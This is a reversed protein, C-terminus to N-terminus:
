QRNVSEEHSIEAIFGDIARAVDKENFKAVLDCRTERASRMALGPNESLTEVKAVIDPDNGRECTHRDFGDECSDAVGCSRAVIMSKQMSMRLTLTMQGLPSYDRLSVINGLKV